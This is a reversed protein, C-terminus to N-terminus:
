ILYFSEDIEGLGMVEDTALDMCSATPGILISLQELFFEHALSDLHELM